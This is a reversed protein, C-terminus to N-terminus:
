LQLVCTDLALGSVSILCMITICYFQIIISTTSNFYHLKSVASTNLLQMQREIFTQKLFIFDHSHATRWLRIIYCTGLNRM